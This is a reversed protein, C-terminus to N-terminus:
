EAKKIQGADEDGELITLAIRLARVVRRITEQKEKYQNFLEQSKQKGYDNEHTLQDIQRKLELLMKDKTAVLTSSEMRVIELRHELERERVRIKKFNSELRGEMEELRARLESLERDKSQLQGRYVKREEDYIRQGEKSQIELQECKSVLEDSRRGLTEGASALQENERRLRELEQELETIRSQAIRLNESQKLAAEPSAHASPTAGSPAGSSGSSASSRSTHPEHYRERMKVVTKLETIGARDIAGTQTGSKPTSRSASSASSPESSTSPAKRARTDLRVTKEFEHNDVDVSQSAASKDAPTPMQPTLSRMGAGDPATATVQDVDNVSKNMSVPSFDNTSQTPKTAAMSKQTGFVPDKVGSASRELRLHGSEIDGEDILVPESSYTGSKHDRLGPPPPPAGTRSKEDTLRVAASGNNVSPPTPTKEDLLSDILQQAAGGRKKKKPSM